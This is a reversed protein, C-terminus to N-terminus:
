ATSIDGRIREEGQWLLARFSNVPGSKRMDLIDSAGRAATVDIVMDGGSVMAGAVAVSV